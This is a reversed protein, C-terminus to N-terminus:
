NLFSFYVVEFVVFVAKTVVLLSSGRQCDSAESAVGNFYHILCHTQLNALRYCHFIQPPSHVRANKAIELSFFHAEAHRMDCWGSLDESVAACYCCRRRRVLACMLDKLAQGKGLHVSIGMKSVLRSEFTNLLFFFLRHCLTSFFFFKKPSKKRRNCM